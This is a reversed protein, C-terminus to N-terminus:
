TSVRVGIRMANLEAATWALGTGPNTNYLNLQRGYGPGGALVFTSSNFTSGVGDVYQLQIGRVGTDTKRAFGGIQVAQVSTPVVSPNQTSFIASEGPTGSYIYTTDGDCLTEDIMTYPATSGGASTSWESPTSDADVYTTLVRQEGLRNPTDTIYVDDFRASFAFGVGSPTGFVLANYTNGALNQTDVGTVTLASTNNVYLAASGASNDIVFELEIYSWSAITITAPATVGLLTGAAQIAGRYVALSGDTRYVVSLQASGSLGTGVYALDCNASPYSTAYFAFGLTGQTYTTSLFTYLHKDSTSYSMSLAQGGFRGTILGVNTSGVWRANLGGATATNSVGNYTDFGEVFVVAM